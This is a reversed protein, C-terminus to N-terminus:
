REIKFLSQSWHWKFKAPSKDENIKHIKERDILTEFDPIIFAGWVSEDKIPREFFEWWSNNSDM